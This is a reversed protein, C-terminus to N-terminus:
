LCSIRRFRYPSNVEVGGDNNVTHLVGERMTGTFHDLNYLWMGTDICHVTRRHSQADLRFERGNFRGTAPMTVTHDFMGPTCRPPSTQLPGGSWARNIITGEIRNGERHTIRFTFTAHRSHLRDYRRARWTGLIPDACEGDGGADGGGGTGTGAGVNGQGGNGRNMLAELFLENATEEPSPIDRVEDSPAQTEVREIEEDPEETEEVDVVDPDTDDEVATIETISEAPEQEVRLDEPTRDVPAIPESELLDGGAEGSEEPSVEDGMGEGLGDMVMWSPENTSHVPGPWFPTILFYLALHAGLSAILAGWAVLRLEDDRTGEAAAHARM